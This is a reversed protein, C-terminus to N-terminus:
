HPQKSSRAFRIFRGNSYTWQIPAPATTRESGSHDAPRAYTTVILRPNTVYSPVGRSWAELVKAVGAPTVKWIRAVYCCGTGWVSYVLGDRDLDILGMPSDGIPASYHMPRACRSICDVKLRYGSRADDVVQIVATSGNDMDLRLLATPASAVAALLALM